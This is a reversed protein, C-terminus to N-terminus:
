NSNPNSLCLSDVPFVVQLNHALSVIRIHSSSHSAPPHWLRHYVWIWSMARHGTFLKGHPVQEFSLGPGTQKWMEGANYPFAERGTQKCMHPVCFYGLPTGSSGEANNTLIHQIKKKKSNNYNNIPNKPPKKPEKKWLVVYIFKM